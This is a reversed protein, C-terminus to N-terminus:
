RTKSVLKSPSGASEASASAQSAKGGGVFSQMVDHRDHRTTPAHAKANIETADPAAKTALSDISTLGVQRASIAAVVPAEGAQWGSGLGQPRREGHLAAAKLPTGLRQRQREGHLAIAKLTRRRGANGVGSSGGHSAAAPVKALHDDVVDFSVIVGAVLATIVDKTTHKEQVTADADESTAPTANHLEAAELPLVLVPPVLVGLHAVYLNFTIADCLLKRNVNRTKAVDHHPGARADRLQLVFVTRAM